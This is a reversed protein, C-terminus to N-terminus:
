EGSKQHPPRPLQGPFLSHLPYLLSFSPPLLFFSSAFSIQFKLFIVSKKESNSRPELRRQSFSRLRQVYEEFLEEEERNDAGTEEDAMLTKTM